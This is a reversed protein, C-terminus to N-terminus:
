EDTLGGIEVGKGCILGYKCYKCPDPDNKERNEEYANDPIPFDASILRDKFDTLKAKLADKMEQDYKCSVTEGLRIYRYEGGSIKFGKQEMLYAYIVIQLCTDIDDQVHGITRASKFDVVLYTGDDLKEVRDPFGHIKVGSEHTCHINEEELVVERHPDMQYATEMMDLFQEKEAEANQSVLPPHQAIFRDFYEGSLKLFEELSMDSNGLEEMLFHAMTGSENAAIVEFPKDDDPEPIGLVYGLM